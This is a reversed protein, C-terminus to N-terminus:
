VPTRTSSAGRAKTDPSAPRFDVEDQMFIAGHGSAGCITLRSTPLSTGHKDYLHVYICNQLKRRHLRVQM